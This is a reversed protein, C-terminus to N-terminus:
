LPLSEDLCQGLAPPMRWDEPEGCVIVESSAPNMGDRRRVVAFSGNPLRCASQAFEFVGGFMEVMKKNQCFYAFGADKSMVILCNQCSVIATPISFFNNGFISVVNMTGAAVNIDLVQVRQNGSDSLAYQNNGPLRVIQTPGRFDGPKSGTKGFTRPSKGKTSLAHLGFVNSVCLIDRQDHTFIVCSHRLTHILPHNEPSMVSHKAILDGTQSIFIVLNMSNLIAVITGDKAVDIGMLPIYDEYTFFVSFVSIQQPNDLRIALIQNRNTVLLCGLGHHWCCGNPGRMENLRIHSRTIAQLNWLIGRFRSFDTAKVLIHRYFPLM